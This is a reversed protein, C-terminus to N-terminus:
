PNGGGVKQAAKSKLKDNLEDIQKQLKDMDEFKDLRSKAEKLDLVRKVQELDARVQNFPQWLGFFAFVVAGIITGLAPVWAGWVKARLEAKEVIKTAAVEVRSTVDLSDM